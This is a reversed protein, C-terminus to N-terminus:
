LPMGSPLFLHEKMTQSNTLSILFHGIESLYVMISVLREHFILAYTITM